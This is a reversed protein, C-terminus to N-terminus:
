LNPGSFSSWTQKALLYYSILQTTVFRKIREKMYKMLLDRIELYILEALFRGDEMSTWIALALKFKRANEDEEEKETETEQWDSERFLSWSYQLHKQGQLSLHGRVENDFNFSSSSTPDCFDLTAFSHIYCRSSLVRSAVGDHRWLHLDRALEERAFHFM